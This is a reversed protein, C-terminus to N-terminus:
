LYLGAFGTAAIPLFLLWQPFLFPKLKHIAIMLISWLAFILAGASAFLALDRADATTAAMAFALALAAITITVMHWAYYATM